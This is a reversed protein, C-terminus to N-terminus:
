RLLALPSLPRYPPRSGSAGLGITTVGPKPGPSGREFRPPGAAVGPRSEVEIAGQVGFPRGEELLGAVTPGSGCMVAGLAGAAILRDKAEGVEPHRRIVPGELDNFLLRGTERRDGTSVADILATADGQSPVGDQDWWGFADATRVPFPLVILAWRMRPVSVPQVREGRGRALVAEGALLAPVDSGVTAGVEALRREDLGCMWLHNLARLTAAADASGGGLGAASPVRKELAIDAFGRVGAEQALAAAARLALNDEGAPVGEILSPDGRVALSLSLTRFRGPDARAHIELRDGLSLPVVLTELEHFGDERRGVVRLFLNLKAPAPVRLTGPSRVTAAEDVDTTGKAPAM